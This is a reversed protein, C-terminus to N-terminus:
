EAARARKWDQFERWENWERSIREHKEALHEGIAKDMDEETMPQTLVCDRDLLGVLDSLKANRALVRVSHAHTDVYFDVRDGEKLSLFERVESPVTIQGKSSMKAEYHPM